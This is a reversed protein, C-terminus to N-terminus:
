MAAIVSRPILVCVCVCVCLRERERQAHLLMLGKADHTLVKDVVFRAGTPPLRSEAENFTLAHQRWQARRLQQAESLDRRLM